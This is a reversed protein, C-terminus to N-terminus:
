LRHRRRAVCLVAREFMHQYDHRVDNVDESVKYCM